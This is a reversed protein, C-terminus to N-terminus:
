QRGGDLADILTQIQVPGLGNFRKDERLNMSEMLAETRVLDYGPFASIINKVRMGTIVEDGRKAMEAVDAFSIWGLTIRRRIEARGKRMRNAKELAVLREENTLEPVM